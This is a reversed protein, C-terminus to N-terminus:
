RNEYMERYYERYAGSTIRRWWEEHARYWKVTEALGQEFTVSPKWSLENMIKAADIAYRLDHGPRDKVFTILSEPKGLQKLLLRVIDINRWENNGGINYVEGAKGRELVADLATCHDRVYLWDRVNLGQGYVPLPKGDTANAIMLPILKEPFQYPGYNNSCRTVLAPFGFTHAAALVLLDSSAKS